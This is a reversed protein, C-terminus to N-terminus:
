WSDLRPPYSMDKTLIKRTEMDIGLSKLVSLKQEEEDDLLISEKQYENRILKLEDLHVKLEQVKNDASRQMDPTLERLDEIEVIENEAHEIKGSTVGSHCFNDIIKEKLPDWESLVQRAQGIVWESPTKDDNYSKEMNIRRVSLKNLKHM